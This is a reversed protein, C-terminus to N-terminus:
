DSAPLSCSSNTFSQGFDVFVTYYVKWGLAQFHFIGSKQTLQSFEVVSGL